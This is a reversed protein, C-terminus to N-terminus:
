CRREKPEYEVMPWDSDPFQPEDLENLGNVRNTLTEFNLLRLARDDAHDDAHDMTM